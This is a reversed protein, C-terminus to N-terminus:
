HAILLPVPAEYIRNYTVGLLRERLPFHGYGGMVILDAKRREAEAILRAGVESHRSKVRHLVAHVGHHRLHNVADIGLIAEQETPREDTVVV